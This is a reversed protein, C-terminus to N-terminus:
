DPTLINAAEGHIKEEQIPRDRFWVWFGIVALVYLATTVLFPGVYASGEGLAERSSEIWAGGVAPGVLWGFGWVMGAIASAVGRSGKPVLEMLVRQRLPHSANMFVARMVFAIVAVEPSGTFALVLLLPLSAIELLVLGRVTGMRAAFMPGLVYAVVIILNQITFADGIQGDTLGHRNSLYLNMFPVSLGAGLAIPSVTLWYRLVVADDDLLLRKLPKAPEREAPGDAEEDHDHDVAHHVKRLPWGAWASIPMVAAAILFVVRFDQPLAEMGAGRAAALIGPMNGGVWTGAAVALNGIAFTIAFRRNADQQEGMALLPDVVYGMPAGLIAAGFAAAYIWGETAVLGRWGLGLGFLLLALSLIRGAGVRDIVRGIWFSFLLSAASGAAAAFGAVRDGHGLSKLYLNYGVWVVGFSFNWGIDALLLRGFWKPARRLALLYANM